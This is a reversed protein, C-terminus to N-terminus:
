LNAFQGRIQQTVHRFYAHNRIDPQGYLDEGIMDYIHQVRAGPIVGKEDRDRGLLWLTDSIAATSEIDHSVIIITNIESMNALEVILKSIEDIMLPDSASFPEDLLLFHESALLQQIIAIRQRQGGSLQDPYCNLTDMMGVRDLLNKAEINTKGAQSAALYLNGAVTHHRFLPYSQQVMGVSGRQVPALPSGVLVQGSTPELLGALIECFKTKGMGSPGLFGVIQGTTRETSVVDQISVNLNRLIQKGNLTLNIDIAQLLFDTRQFSM